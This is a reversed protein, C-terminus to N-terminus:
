AATATEHRGRGPPRSRRRTTASFGAHVALDGGLQRLRSFICSISRDTATAIEGLTRGAFRAELLERDSGGRALGRHQSGQGGTARSPDRRV